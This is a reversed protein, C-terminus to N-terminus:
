LPPPYGDIDGLVPVGRAAARAVEAQSRPVGPSIAVLDVGAFLEGTFAGLRVAAAPLLATLARLGPPDARTDAAEVRAGRRALWGAMSVGTEGLGLVLARRGEFNAAGNM